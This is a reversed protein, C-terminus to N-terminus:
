VAVEARAAAARAILVEASPRGRTPKEPKHEATSLNDIHAAVDHIKAVRKSGQLFTHVPCKKQSILNRLYAEKYGLAQAVEGVNILIKGQFKYLLIQLTTSTM